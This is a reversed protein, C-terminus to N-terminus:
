QGVGSKNELRVCACADSFSSRIGAAREALPEDNGPKVTRSDWLLYQRSRMLRLNQFSQLQRGM